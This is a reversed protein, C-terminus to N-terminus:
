DLRLGLRNAAILAQTRTSVGLTRLVASVHIKTTNESIDLKRAILKNPLGKLLLGLVEAQRASLGLDEIRGSAPAMAAPPAEGAERSKLAQVPVYIGGSAVLRVAGLLVDRPSTKPIYGMAGLDLAKLVNGTDDSGSVVVVPLQPLAERMRELAQLGSCDPLGLDLLCLDFPTKQARAIAGALNGATEVETARDLTSMALGIADAMLPHDDVILIRM